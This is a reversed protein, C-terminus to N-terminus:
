NSEVGDNFFFMKKYVKGDEYFEIYEGLIKGDKCFCKKCVKGNEYFSIYEGNEKGNKFFRKQRIKGDEYFEIYEGSLKFNRYVWKLYDWEKQQNLKNKLTEIDTEERFNKKFWKKGEKCAYKKILDQLTIKM